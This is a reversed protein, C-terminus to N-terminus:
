DRRESKPVARSLMARGTTAPKMLRKSVGRYETRRMERRDGTRAPVRM